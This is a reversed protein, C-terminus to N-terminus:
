AKFYLHTKSGIPVKQASENLLKASAETLLAGRVVPGVEFTPKGNETYGTVTVERLEYPVEDSVGPVSDEIPATSEHTGVPQEAPTIPAEPDPANQEEPTEPVEIEDGVKIGQAEMEPNNALDEATVIHKMM